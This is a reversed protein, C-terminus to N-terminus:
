FRLQTALSVGWDLRTAGLVHGANWRYGLWPGVTYVWNGSQRRFEAGLLLSHEVVGSLFFNAEAEAASSWFRDPRGEGKRLYSIWLDYPGPQGGVSARLHWLEFDNGLPHGTPLNNHLWNLGSVDAYTWNQVLTYQLRLDWQPFLDTVHVGVTAGVRSPPRGPGFGPFPTTLDDALYDVYLRLNPRVRWEMELGAMYNDRWQRLRANIEYGVSVPIPNVVYAWFPSGRMLVAEVFGVRIVEGLHVDARMAALSRGGDLFGVMKAYRLWRFPEFSIQIQDLGGSYESLVLGADPSTGWGVPIRGFWLNVDGLPFTVYASRLATGTPWTQLGLGLGTQSGGGVWETWVSSLGMHGYGSVASLSGAEVAQALHELAALDRPSLVLGAARRRAEQLYAALERQSVPRAAGAWLPVLGRTKLYELTGYVPSGYPIPSAFAVDKFFVTAAGAMAVALVVVGPPLVWAWRTPQTRGLGDVREGRSAPSFGGLPVTKGFFLSVDVWPTSCRLGTFTGSQGQRAEAKRPGLYGEGAAVRYLLITPVSDQIRCISQGCRGAKSRVGPGRVEGCVVRAEM